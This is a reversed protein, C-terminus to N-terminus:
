QFGEKAEKLEKVKKRVKQNMMLPNMKGQRENLKKARGKQPNKMMQIKEGRGKRANKCDKGIRGGRQCDSM